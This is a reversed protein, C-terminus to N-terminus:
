STQIPRARLRSKELLARVLPGRAPGNTNTGLATLHTEPTMYQELKHGQDVAIEQIASKGRTLLGAYDLFVFRISLTTTKCVNCLRACRRQSLPSLGLNRKTYTGCCELLKANADCLFRESKESPNEPTVLPSGDIAEKVTKRYSKVCEQRLIPEAAFIADLLGDANQNAALSQLLVDDRIDIIHALREMIGLQGAKLFGIDITPPLGHFIEYPTIGYRTHVKTRYAYMIGDLYNDWQSTAKGMEM